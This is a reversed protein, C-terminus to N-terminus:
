KRTLKHNSASVPIQVNPPSFDSNGRRAKKTRLILRTGITSTNSQPARMKPGSAYIQFSVHNM